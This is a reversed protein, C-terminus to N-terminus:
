IGLDDFLEAVEARIQRQKVPDPIKDILVHAIERYHGSNIASSPGIETRVYYHLTAPSMVKCVVGALQRRFEVWDLESASLAERRTSVQGIAKSKSAVKKKHVPPPAVDWAIESEDIAETAKKLDDLTVRSPNDSSSSPKRSGNRERRLAPPAMPQPESRRNPRGNKGRPLPQVSKGDAQNLAVRVDARNIGTDEMRQARQEADFLEQLLRRGARAVSDADEARQHLVALRFDGHAMAVLNSGDFGLNVQDIERGIEDYDSFMEDLTEVVANFKEKSLTMQGLLVDGRELVCVGTVGGIRRIPALRTNLDVESHFNREM